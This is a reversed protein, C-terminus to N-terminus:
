SEMMEEFEPKMCEWCLDRARDKGVRLKWDKPILRPEIPSDCKECYVTLKIKIGRKKANGPSLKTM